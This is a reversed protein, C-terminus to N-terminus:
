APMSSSCVVEAHVVGPVAQDFVLAVYHDAPDVLQDTITVTGHDAHVTWRDPVGYAGLRKRVDAAILADARTITRLLDRRTTIGVLGDEDVVPVSRLGRDIMM